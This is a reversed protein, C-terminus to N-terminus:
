KTMYYYHITSLWMEWAKNNSELYTRIYAHLACINRQTYIIVGFYCVIEVLNTSRNSESRLFKLSLSTSWNAYDDRYTNSCVDDMGMKM